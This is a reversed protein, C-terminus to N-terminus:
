IKLELYDREIEEINYHLNMYIDNQDKCNILIIPNNEKSKSYSFDAYLIHKCFPDRKAIELAKYLFPIYKKYADKIDNESIPNESITSLETLYPSSNSFKDEVQIAYFNYSKNEHQMQFYKIDRGKLTKMIKLKNKENMKFGFYISKVARFDYIKKGWKDTIIRIENEYEWKKSKTSTYKKILSNKNIDPNSNSIDPITVKPPKNSYKVHFNYYKNLTQNKTLIKLDYEICFGKHSNSYHAWLLEDSYTKSLSFIGIEKLISEDLVNCLNKYSNQVSVKKGFGFIKLLWSLQGKVTDSDILNECPDNLSKSDSAWFYNNVLSDLHFEDLKKNDRYKYVLM